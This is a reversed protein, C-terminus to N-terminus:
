FLQVPGSALSGQQVPQPLRSMEHIADSVEKLRAEISALRRADSEGARSECAETLSSLLEAVKELRLARERAHDLLQGVTDESQLAIMAQEIYHQRDRPEEFEAMVLVQFSERLQALSETLVARARAIQASTEDTDTVADFRVQERDVAGARRGQLVVWGAVVAVLTALEVGGPWGDFVVRVVLVLAVWGLALALPRCKASCSTAPCTM